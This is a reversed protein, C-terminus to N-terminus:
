EADSIDNGTLLSRFKDKTPLATENLKEWSDLYDYPFVSKRTILQIQAETLHKM